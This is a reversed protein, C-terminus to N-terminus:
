QSPRHAYIYLWTFAVFIVHVCLLFLMLRRTILGIWNGATPVRRGATTYARRPQAATACATPSPSGEAHMHADPPPDNSGSSSLDVIIDVNSTM